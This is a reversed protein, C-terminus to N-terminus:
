SHAVKDRRAVIHFVVDPAVDGRVTVPDSQMWVFSYDYVTRRDDNKEVVRPFAVTLRGRLLYRGAPLNRFHFYGSADSHTARAYRDLVDPLTPESTEGTGGNGGTPHAIADASEQLWASTYSTDPLALVPSRDRAALAGDPLQVVLRGEIVGTGSRLYPAFPKADFGPLAAAAALLTAALRNWM